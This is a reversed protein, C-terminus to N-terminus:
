EFERLCDLSGKRFNVIILFDQCLLQLCVLTGSSSDIGWPGVAKKAKKNAEAQVQGTKGIFWSQLRVSTLM